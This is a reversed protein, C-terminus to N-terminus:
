AWAKASQNVLSVGGIVAAATTNKVYTASQAVARGMSLTLRIERLKAANRKAGREEANGSRQMADLVTNVKQMESAFQSITRLRGEVVDVMRSLQSLYRDADAYTLGTFTIQEEGGSIPHSVFRVDTINRPNVSGEVVIGAERWGLGGPSFVFGEEEGGGQHLKGKLQALASFINDLHASGQYDGAASTANERFFGSVFRSFALFRSSLDDLMQISNVAVRQGTVNEMNLAPATIARMRLTTVIPGNVNTNSHSQIVKRTRNLYLKARGLENFAARIWDSLFVWVRRAMEKLKALIAKVRDSISEKSFRTLTARNGVAFAEMSPILLSADAPGVASALMTEILQASVPTLGGEGEAQELLDAAQDLTELAHLTSDIDRQEPLEPANVIPSPIDEEAVDSVKLKALESKVTDVFLEDKYREDQPLDEYPVMCPHTKVEEDKTEGYTWGQSAKFKMWNEHSKAPTITPDNVVAQVGDIASQRIEDSSDDWSLAADNSAGRISEHVVKAIEEIAEPTVDAPSLIPTAFEALIQDSETAIRNLGLATHLPNHM